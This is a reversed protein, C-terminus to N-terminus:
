VSYNGGHSISAAVIATAAKALTIEGWGPLEETLAKLTLAFVHANGKAEAQKKEEMTM